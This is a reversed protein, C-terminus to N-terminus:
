SLFTALLFLVGTIVTSLGTRAGEGVGAASEIYSTNSSSSGMGGAIASLSDVVLIERTRPPNGQEDLLKAEAGVAVMTGMTDFFDALMLTFVLLIVTVIGLKEISGFLSFQGLTSFDPTQVVTDPLAPVNMAWGTLNDDSQQGIKAISEVIVALVTSVVIGILIAGRVKRVM